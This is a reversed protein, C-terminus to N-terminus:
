THDTAARINCYLYSVSYCNRLFVDGFIDCTCNGRSQFAGFQYAGASDANGFAMCAPDISFRKGGIDLYFTPVRTMSATPFIYGWNANYCGGPISSYIKRLTVDDLLVLTTGTDIIASNDKPRNLITSNIAYTPSSIEWFGKAKSVPTYWPATIGVQKLVSSDIFGFTFFSSNDINPNNANVDSGMKCTFVQCNSPIDKQSIMNEIPTQVARPQCTNLM